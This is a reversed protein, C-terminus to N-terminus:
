NKVTKDPENLRKAVTYLRDVVSSPLNRVQAIDEIKFLKNDEEDYCSYIILKVEADKTQVVPKNNIFKYLSSEYENAEGAMLEKVVIKVGDIEVIEQKRQLKLLKELTNM